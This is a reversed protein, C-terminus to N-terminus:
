NGDCHNTPRTKSIVTIPLSVDRNYLLMVSIRYDLSTLPKISSPSHYLTVCLVTAFAVVFIIVLQGFLQIFESM